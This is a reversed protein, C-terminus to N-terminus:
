PIYNSILVDAFDVKEDNNLDGVASITPIIFILFLTLILVTTLLLFGRPTRSTNVTKMNFNFKNLMGYELRKKM